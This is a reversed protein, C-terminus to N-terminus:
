FVDVGERGLREPLRHQELQQVHRIALAEDLDDPSGLVSEPLGYV